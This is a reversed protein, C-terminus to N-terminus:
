AVFATIKSLTIKEGGLDFYATGNEYSVGQLTGVRFTTASVAQGKSDVASVQFFYTGDPLTTGSQDKGDWDIKQKSTDKAGPQINRVLNGNSDFIQILVEGPQSLQYGGAMVKGEQIALRNGQAEVMKGILAPASLNNLSTQNTSITNLSQNMNKLAEVMNLQAMQNAMQNNDMPELPNQYKMQTFFLNLFDEQSLTVKRATETTSANSGAAQTLATTSSTATLNM